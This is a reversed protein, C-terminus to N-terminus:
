RSPSRRSPRRKCPLCVLALSEAILLCRAKAIRVGGVRSNATRLLSQTGFKQTNYLRSIQEKCATTSFNLRPTAAAAVAVHSQLWSVKTSCMSTFSVLTAFPTCHFRASAGIVRVDLKEAIFACLLMWDASMLPMSLADCCASTM